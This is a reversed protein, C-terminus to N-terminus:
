ANYGSAQVIRAEAGTLAVAGKLYLAFRKQCIQPQALEAQAYQNEIYLAADPCYEAEQELEPSCSPEPPQESQRLM